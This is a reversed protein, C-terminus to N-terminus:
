FFSKVFGVTVIIAFIWSVPRYEEHIISLLQFYRMVDM